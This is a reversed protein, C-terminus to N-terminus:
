RASLISCFEGTKDDPAGVLHNAMFHDRGTILVSEAQGEKQRIQDVMAEAAKHSPHGKEISVFLFAPMAADGVHAMPSGDARSRRPTASHRAFINLIIGDGKARDVLDYM